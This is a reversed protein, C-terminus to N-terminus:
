ASGGAAVEPIKKKKKELSTKFFRCFAVSKDSGKALLACGRLPPKGDQRRVSDNELYSIPVQTKNHDSHCKQHKLFLLIQYAKGGGAVM